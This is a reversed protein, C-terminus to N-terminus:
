DAPIYAAKMYGPKSMMEIHEMYQELENFRHSIFRDFPIEKYRKAIFRFAREYTSPSLALLGCIRANSEFIYKALNITVEKDNMIRMPAGVEIYTGLKRVMLLGDLCASQNNACQIVLSAGGDTAERVKSVREEHTMGTLNICEDAATLEKALELRYPTHSTFVLQEVGMTRLLLGTMIGIPGAGIVLARTSTSLGEQVGGMETMSMEVARMAVAFPDMLAAIEGPMEDPIKWVYSGPYIYVYEGFGGKFHPYLNVNTNPRGPDDQWRSSAGYCFDEECTGCVGRGHSICSDCRGCTIHPYVVIRDGLNLKGGYSFVTLNANKGISVIRGSFEHGNASPNKRNLKVMHADSGCILSAETKIVISNDDAEPVPCSMVKMECQGTLALVKGEMFNIERENIKDSLEQTKPMEIKDDPKM